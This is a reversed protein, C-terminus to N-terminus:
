KSVEESCERSVTGKRTVTSLGSVNLLIFFHASLSLSEKNANYLTAYIIYPSEEQGLCQSQCLQRLQLGRLRLVSAPGTGPKHVPVAHFRDQVQVTRTAHLLATQQVLPFGFALPHRGRAWGLQLLSAPLPLIHIAFFATVLM